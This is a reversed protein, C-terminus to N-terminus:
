TQSAENGHNDLIYLVLPGFPGAIATIWVWAKISRNRARAMQGAILMAAVYVLVLFGWM